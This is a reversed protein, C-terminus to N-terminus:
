NIVRIEKPLDRDNIWAEITQNFLHPYAFSFGHGVNPIVVGKADINGELIKSLSKKMIQKENEGVTVLIKGKCNSFDTPLKYSLNEELMNIINKSKMHKTEKYYKEFYVEDIYLEKAQLKSFRRNKTLWSTLKITPKIIIKTIPKPRVLASNIVAYSIFEPALSIIEIAIQAGLSFGVITISRGNAKVRLLEIMEEAYGHISFPLCSGNIQINPVICHYESFYKVQKDWMWGSVGGGHLFVILPANDNGYEEYHLTM